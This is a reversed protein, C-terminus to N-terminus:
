KRKPEVSAMSLWYGAFLLALSGILSSAVNLPGLPLFHWNLINGVIHGVWFGAIALLNYMLLWKFSGGRWFHFANGLVVAMLTGLLLTPFTM